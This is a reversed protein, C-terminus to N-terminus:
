AFNAAIGDAFMAKKLQMAVSRHVVNGALRYEIWNVTEDPDDHWGVRRQLDQVPMLKPQGEVVTDILSPPDIWVSGNFVPQTATM